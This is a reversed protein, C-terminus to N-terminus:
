LNAFNLAQAVAKLRELLRYNEKSKGFTSQLLTHKFILIVMFTVAGRLRHKSIHREVLQTSHKIATIGSLCMCGVSQQQNM